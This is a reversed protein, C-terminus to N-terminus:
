TCSTVVATNTQLSPHVLSKINDIDKFVALYNDVVKFLLYELQLVKGASSLEHYVSYQKHAPSLNTMEPCKVKVWFHREQSISLTVVWHFGLLSLLKNSM